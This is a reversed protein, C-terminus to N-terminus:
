LASRGVDLLAGLVHAALRHRGVVITDVVLRPPWATPPKGDKRWSATVWDGVRVRKGMYYSPALRCWVVTAGSELSASLAEVHPDLAVRAAKDTAESLPCMSILWHRVNGGYGIAATNQTPPPPDPLAAIRKRTM